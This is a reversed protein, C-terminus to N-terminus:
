VEYFKFSKGSKPDWWGMEEALSYVNSSAMYRDPNNLDIEGIRPINASIGVHDDPIRVAAWVAGVHKPTAGTIEFHWVEKPDAITLCEGMYDIYGYQKTLEDALRIAERATRCRELMLREIEEIHFIGGELNRLGDRVFITTEGVALQHENVCPYATDLFAFSEATEPIEGLEKLLRRDLPDKTRMRGGYVKNKADPANTRHPSVSLWTRFLGDCTHSTIVSGDTTALRGVMISTCGGALYPHEDQIGRIATETNPHAALTWVAALIILATPFCLHRKM